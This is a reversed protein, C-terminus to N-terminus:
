MDIICRYFDLESFRSAILNSIAMCSVAPNTESHSTSYSVRQAKKSSMYLCCTKGGFQATEQDSYWERGSRSSGISLQPDSMLLVMRGEVPYCSNQTIHGSDTVQVLRHPFGVDHFHLGNCQRNRVADRLVSNARKLHEGLPIHMITQLAVVDSM